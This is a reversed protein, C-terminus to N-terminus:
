RALTRAVRFGINVDRIGAGYWVRFASRLNRPENSWSGGRLVRDGCDGGSTWASGDLPAGFHNEHWCDEVWEWVNGHVDHLGFGNAPFSGVPVTKGRYVGKRGSGYTSHGDYNAQDTSITAGFHFPGTTGARAAYEWEAESLLRYAKGTKASLWEVYKKADRWSVLVVPRRGRGWRQDKPRYRGCGGGAVCADWEEFTVEYKGVALPATITVRHVPREDDGGGKEGKPSGMMFSGAPIVVMEPCVKCDKFKAGKVLRRDLKRALRKQEEVPRWSLAREQAAAVQQSTMREALADREKLAEFAGRAAALNLWVHAQVYSQPVGLGKEYLRGLELMARRDGGDAAARWQAVAEAVRGAQWASKGADYDAVAPVASVMLFVWVAACFARRTLKRNDM